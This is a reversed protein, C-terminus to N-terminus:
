AISETPNAASKSVGGRHTTPVSATSQMLCSLEIEEILEGHLSTFCTIQVRCGRTTYFARVRKLLIAKDPIGRTTGM